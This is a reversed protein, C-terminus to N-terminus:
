ASQVSRLTFVHRGVHLDRIHREVRCQTEVYGCVGGHEDSWLCKYKKGEHMGLFSFSGKPIGALDKSLNPPPDDALQNQPRDIMPPPITSMTCPYDLLLRPDTSPFPAPPQHTSYPSPNYCDPGIGLVGTQEIYAKFGPVKFTFLSAEQIRYDFPANNETSPPRDCESLLTTTSYCNAPFPAYCDDVALHSLVVPVLGRVASPEVEGTNSASVPFM